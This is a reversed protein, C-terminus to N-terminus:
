HTGTCVTPLLSCCVKGLNLLFSAIIICHNCPTEVCQDIGPCPANTCVQEATLVPCAAGGKGAAQTVTRSQTQVGTGCSVSCASWTTWPSVVCDIPRNDWYYKYSQETLAWPPQKFPTAIYSPTVPISCTSAQNTTCKSHDFPPFAGDSFPQTWAFKSRDVGDMPVPSPRTSLFERFGDNVPVGANINTTLTIAPIVDKSCKYCSTAENTPLGLGIQKNDYDFTVAYKHFFIDGTTRHVFAHYQFV